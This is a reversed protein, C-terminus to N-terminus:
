KRFYKWYTKAGTGEVKFVPGRKTPPHIGQRFLQGIDEVLQERDAFVTHNTSMFSMSADSVDITEIGSVIVPGDPSPVDGARVLGGAFKKSALMARDNTSAYLTVGKMLGQLKAILQGFSQRGIDPAALLVENLKLDPTKGGAKRIDGQASLVELLPDNGMSHAIINVTDIEKNSAVLTLLDLLHQRSSKATDVDHKYDFTGGRSPWSFTVAPGDFGIDHAIQATRFVAEDFRVNYGHVFVFAQRKFAKANVAQKKIGDLFDQRSGIVDVAAITFDKRVDESRLAFRGIVFDIEPTPITGKEREIPITVVARGLTLGTGEEGSFTAIKRDKGDVKKVADAEQRRSTGFYVGIERYGKDDTSASVSRASRPAPAPAPPPPPAAGVGRDSDGGSVGRRRPKSPEPTPAQASKAVEAAPEAVRACVQVTQLPAGADRKYTLTVRELVIADEREDLPRTREGTTLTIPREEFHQQGNGYGVVIRSLVVQGSTMVIRVATVRTLKDEPVTIVKAGSGADLTATALLAWGDQACADQASVQPAFIAQAIIWISMSAVVFFRRMM